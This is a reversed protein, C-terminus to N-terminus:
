TKWEEGAWKPNPVRERVGESINEERVERRSVSPVRGETFSEDSESDDDESGVYVVPQDRDNLAKEIRAVVDRVEEGTLRLVIAGALRPKDLVGVVVDGDPQM